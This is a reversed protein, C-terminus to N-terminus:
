GTPWRAPVGAPRGVPPAPVSLRGRGRRAAVAVLAGVAIVGIVALPGTPRPLSRGTLERFALALGIVLFPATVIWWPIQLAVALGGLMM